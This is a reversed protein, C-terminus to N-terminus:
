AVLQATREIESACIVTWKVCSLMATRASARDVPRMMDWYFGGGAGVLLVPAAAIAAWTVHRKREREQERQCTEFM